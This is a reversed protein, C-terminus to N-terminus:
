AVYPEADRFTHFHTPITVTAVTTLNELPVPVPAVKLLTSNATDVWAVHNGDGDALVPLSAQAAATVRRGDEADDGVTFDSSDVTAEAIRKGTSTGLNTQAESYSAPAGQCLVIRTTNNKAYNASADLVVDALFHTM